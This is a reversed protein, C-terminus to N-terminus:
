TGKKMMKMGADCEQKSISGDRNTDMKDFMEESGTAHEAATLKGDKNKDIVAIKEASSKDDSAPKAGQKAMAADMESATVTGDRNADIQEFMKKAGTAHEARTIKGDGNADMLKFHKDAADHEAFAAPAACLALSCAALIGIRKKATNM